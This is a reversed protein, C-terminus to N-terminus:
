VGLLLATSRPTTRGRLFRSPARQSRLTQPIVGLAIQRDYIHQRLEDWGGDFAGRYKDSWEPAVHHPAHVAPTSFYCFFPRNPTSAKQRQIWTIAQDALDETLHYNEKGVHPSIATTQDYVPPEWQSSEAGIIGYFRDFGM